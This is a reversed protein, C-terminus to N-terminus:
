WRKSPRSQLLSHNSKTKFSADKGKEQNKLFTERVKLTFDLNEPQDKREQAEWSRM